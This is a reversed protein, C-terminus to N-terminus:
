KAFYFRVFAMGLAFSFAYGFRDLRVLEQGRATRFRAMLLMAGGSIWPTVILNLLRIDHNRIFLAPFPWLSIGGALAGWTLYGIASLGPDRPKQLTDLIGRFSLVAGRVCLEAFCEALIQLFLETLFEFLFEM